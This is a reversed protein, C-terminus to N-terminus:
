KIWITVCDEFNEVEDIEFYDRDSYPNDLIVKKSKDKIKSLEDILDQVTLM